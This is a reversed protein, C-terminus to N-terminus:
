QISYAGRVMVWIDTKATIGRGDSKPIILLHNQSVWYGTMLDAAGTVDSVGNAGNDIAMAEGSRLIVETGEEGILKQGATLMVPKFSAASSGSGSKLQSIQADVYSKSVLPDTESGPDAAAAGVVLTLGFIAIVVTLVIAAKKM